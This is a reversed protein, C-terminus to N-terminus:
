TEAYKIFPRELNWSAIHFAPRQIYSLMLILSVLEHSLNVVHSQGFNDAHIVHIYACAIMIWRFVCAIHSVSGLCGEYDHILM